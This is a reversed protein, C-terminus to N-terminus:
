PKLPFFAQNQANKYCLSFFLRDYFNTKRINAPYKEQFQLILSDTIWFINHLSACICVARNKLLSVMTGRGGYNYHRKKSNFIENCIKSIIRRFPATNSWNSFRNKECFDNSWIGCSYVCEGWYYFPGNTTLFGVRM